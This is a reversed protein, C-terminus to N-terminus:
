RGEADPARGRAVAVRGLRGAGSRRAPGERHPQTRERDGRQDPAHPADQGRRPGPPVQVVVPDDPRRRSRSDRRPRAAAAAAPRRPGGLDAIRPVDRPRRTPADGPRDRAALRLTSRGPDVRRARDLAPRRRAVPPARDHPLLRRERPRDRRQPRARRHRRGRVRLRHAPAGRVRAPDRERAPAPRAGQRDRPSRGGEARARRARGAALANRAGPQRPDSARDRRRACRDAVLGAQPRDAGHERLRRRPRPRREDGRGLADHARGQRVPRPGQASRDGQPPRPQRARRHLALRVRDGPRCRAARGRVGRLAVPERLRHRGRVDRQGRRVDGPARREAERAGARRLGLVGLGRDARVRGVVRSDGAGHRFRPSPVPVADHRDGRQAAGCGGRDRSSGGPRRARPVRDGRRDPVAIGGGPVRPRVPRSRPTRARAGRHDPVDRERGRDRPDRPRALAREALRGGAREPALDRGGVVSVLRRRDRVAHRRTSRFSREVGRVRFCRRRGRRPPRLARVM